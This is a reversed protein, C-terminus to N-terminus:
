HGDSSSPPASANHTHRRCLSSRVRSSSRALRSAKRYLILDRGTKMTVNKTAPLTNKTVAKTAAFKAERMRRLDDYRSM